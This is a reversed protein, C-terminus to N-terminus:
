PTPDAREPSRRAVCRPEQHTLTHQLITDAVALNAAVQQRPCSQAPSQGRRHNETPSGCPGAIVIASFAGLVGVVVSLLVPVPITWSEYLAVLFLYAFLVALGLIPGTQGTAEHEQYATGTWEFSYGPPLTTESLSAM